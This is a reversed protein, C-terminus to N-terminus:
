GVTKPLFVHATCQPTSQQAPDRRLQGVRLAHRDCKLFRLRDGNRPESDARRLVVAQLTHVREADALERYTHELRDALGVEEPLEGRGHFAPLRRGLDVIQEHAPGWRVRALPREGETAEVRREAELAVVFREVERGKRGEVELEFNFSTFPTLNLPEDDREFGLPADFRGFTFSWQSAHSPTWSVLLNDIETSAEGGEVATTLQGFFYTEGVPKFVSVALKGVGLTNMRELRHYEATGVAFGSVTVPQPEEFTVPVGQADALEATVGCLLACWLASRM